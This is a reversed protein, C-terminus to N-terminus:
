CSSRIDEEREQSKYGKLYNARLRTVIDSHRFYRSGWCHSERLIAAALHSKGTGVAGFM